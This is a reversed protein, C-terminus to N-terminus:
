EGQCIAAEAARIAEVFAAATEAARLAERLHADILLRCLRGLFLLHDKQEPCCVLFFLDTLGGGREGFAIGNITRAAALVPGDGYLPRGPHPVAVGYQLATSGQAERESLAQVLAPGDLTPAGREALQVLERLVSAKTKAALNLEVAVEDLVPSVLMCGSVEPHRDKQRRAPLGALNADIWNWVEGARFRWEGRVLLAPLIRQEAMRVVERVSVHLSAAVEQVTLVTRPM